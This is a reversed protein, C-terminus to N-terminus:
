KECHKEVPEDTIKEGGRETAAEGFEAKIETEKCAVYIIIKTKYNYIITDYSVPKSWSRM